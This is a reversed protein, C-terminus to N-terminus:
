LFEVLCQYKRFYSYIIQSSSDPSVSFKYSLQNDTQTWNIGPIVGPTSLPIKWIESMMQYQKEYANFKDSEEITIKVFPSVIKKNEFILNLDKSEQTRGFEEKIVTWTTPSLTRVLYDGPLVNRIFIMQDCVTEKKATFKMINIPQKWDFVSYYKFFKRIFMKKHEFELKKFANLTLIMWTIGNFYGYKSGYIHRRKAWYRVLQYCEVFLQYRSFLIKKIIKVSDISNQVGMTINDKQQYVLNVETKDWTILNITPIKGDVFKVYKFYPSMKSLRVCEQGFSDVPLNGILIYDYDSDEIGYARSGVLEIKHIFCFNEVLDIILNKCPIKEFSGIHDFVRYQPGCKHLFSIGGLSVHITQRNIISSEIEKKLREATKLSDVIGLTIHPRSDINVNLYKELTTRLNIISSEESSTLVVAFRHTLEFIEAQDFVVQKKRVQIQERIQPFEQITVFKQFLSVHPAIKTYGDDYKCRITNLYRWYCPELVLCLITGPKIQLEPNDMVRSESEIQNVNLHSLLGFHDSAWIDNISLNFALQIRLPQINKYLIKDIRSRLFSKTTKSTLGNELYDFTFGEQDPCLVKWTDRFGSSEHFNDDHNFDGVVIVKDAQIESFLQTLQEQRKHDSNSQKDSTLHLNIIEILEEFKNLFGMQLYKKMHNGDLTVLNQCAPQYKSLILQGFIKPENNTVYYHKRIFPCELLQQKFKLTIEQLCVVDASYEQLYKLIVPMRPNLDTLHKDYKDILCNLTIISLHEKIPDAQQQDVQKWVKGTFRLLSINSFYSCVELIEPHYLRRDRDWLVEGAYQILHVRHWPIEGGKEMPIWDHYSVTKLQGYNIFQIFAKKPDAKQHWKLMYYVRDSTILPNKKHSM